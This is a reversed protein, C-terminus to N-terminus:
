TTKYYQYIIPIYKYISCIIALIFLLLVPIKDLFLHLRMDTKDIDRHFQRFEKVADKMWKFNANIELPTNSIERELINVDPVSDELKKRSVELSDIILNTQDSFGWYTQHIANFDNTVNNIYNGIIDTREWEELDDTIDLRGAASIKQSAAEHLIKVADNNHIICERLSNIESSMERINESLANQVGSIQAKLSNFRLAASKAGDNASTSLGEFAEAVSEAKKGLLAQSNKVELVRTARLYEAFIYSSIILLTISVFYTSYCMGTTFPAVSFSGQPCRNDSANSGFSILVTLGSWILSNRTAKKHDETRDLKKISPSEQGNTM